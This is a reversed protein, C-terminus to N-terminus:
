NCDEIKQKVSYLLYCADSKVLTVVKDDIKLISDPSIEGEMFFDTRYCTKDYTKKDFIMVTDISVPKTTISDLGEFCNEPHATTPTLVPILAPTFVSAFLLAVVQLFSTM